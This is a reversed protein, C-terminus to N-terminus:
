DSHQDGVRNKGVDDIADAREKEARLSPFKVQDGVLRLRFSNWRYYIKLNPEETYGETWFQNRIM